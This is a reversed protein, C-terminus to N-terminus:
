FWSFLSHLREFSRQYFSKKMPIEKVKTQLSTTSVVSQKDLGLFHYKTTKSKTVPRDVIDNFAGYDKENSVVASKVTTEVKITVGYQACNDSLGQTVGQERYKAEVDKCVANKYEYEKQQGERLKKQELMIQNQQNILEQTQKIQDDLTVSNEKAKDLQKQMQEIDSQTKINSYGANMANIIDQNEQRQSQDDLYSKVDRRFQENSYTAGNDTYYNYAFTNNCFLLSTVIISSIYFTKKM